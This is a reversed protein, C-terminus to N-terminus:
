GKQKVHLKQFLELAIESMLRILICDNKQGRIQFPVNQLEQAKDLAIKKIYTENKWGDQIYFM